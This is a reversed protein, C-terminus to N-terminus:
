EKIMIDFGSAERMLYVVEATSPFALDTGQRVSFPACPVGKSLYFLEFLRRAACM